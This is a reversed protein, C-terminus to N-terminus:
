FIKLILEFRVNIKRLNTKLLEKYDITVNKKLKKKKKKKKYFLEMFVVGRFVVIFSFVIELSWLKYSIHGCPMTM